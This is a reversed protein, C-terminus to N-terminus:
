ARAFVRESRVVVDDAATFSSGRLHAPTNTPHLPIPEEEEFRM